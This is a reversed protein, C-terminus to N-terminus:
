QCGPDPRDATASSLLLLLLLPLPAKYVVSFLPLVKVHNLSRFKFDGIAIPNEGCLSM